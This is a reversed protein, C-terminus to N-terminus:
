QVKYKLNTKPKTQGKFSIISGSLRSSAGTSAFSGAGSKKASKLPFSTQMSDDEFGHRIEDSEKQNKQLPNIQNLKTLANRSKRASNGEKIDRVTVKNNNRLSQDSM